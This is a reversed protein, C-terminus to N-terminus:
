FFSQEITVIDGPKLTANLNVKRAEQSESNESIVYIARKSARETFGGALSIAKRVTLGPQFPFGGPRTVEGNVYFNRYQVISVTVEPKVLYDGLLGQKITNQLEAVTVGSLKVQGLFPYTISGNDTVQAEITLDPEGYVQIRVSDGSGLVYTSLDVTNAFGNASVFVTAFAFLLFHKTTLKLGQM